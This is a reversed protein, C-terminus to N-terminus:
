RKSDKNDNWVWEPLKLKEWESENLIEIHKQFREEEMKRLREIPQPGFKACCPRSCDKIM